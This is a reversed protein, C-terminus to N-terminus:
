VVLDGRETLASNRNRKTYEFNLEKLILQLSTGPLSPINPDGHVATVIEKVNPIEGRFWFANMKSRIANKYFYDIKDKIKPCIKIKFPSKLQGTNKYESIKTIVTRKGIGTEKSLSSMM